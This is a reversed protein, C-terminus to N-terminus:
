VKYVFEEFLFINQELSQPPTIGTTNHSVHLDAVDYYALEFDQRTKRKSESKLDQFLYSSLLGELLQSHLVVVTRICRNSRCEIVWSPQYAM